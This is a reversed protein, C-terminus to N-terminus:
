HPALSHIYKFMLVCLFHDRHERITQLELPKVLVIGRTNFHNNGHTACGWIYLEYELKSQIYSKYLKLLLQKAFIQNLGLYKAENVLEIRNSGLNTSIQDLNLSQLQMKSGRIM